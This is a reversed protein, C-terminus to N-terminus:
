FGLYKKAKIYCGTGEILPEKYFSIKQKDQSTLQQPNPDPTDIAMDDYAVNKAVSLADYAINTTDAIVVENYVQDFKVYSGAVFAGGTPTGGADCVIRNYKIRKKYQPIAKM